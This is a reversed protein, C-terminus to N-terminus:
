LDISGKTEHLIRNYYPGKCYSVITHNKMDKPEIWGYSLIVKPVDERPYDLFYAEFIFNLWPIMMTRTNYLASYSVGLVPNKIVTSDFYVCSRDQSISVNRPKYTIQNKFQVYSM